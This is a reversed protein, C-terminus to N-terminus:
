EPRGLGNVPIEHLPSVSQPRDQGPGILVHEAGPERAILAAPKDLIVFRAPLEQGSGSQQNGSLVLPTTSGDTLAISNGTISEGTSVPLTYVAPFWLPPVAALSSRLNWIAGFDVRDM